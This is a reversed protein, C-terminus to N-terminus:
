SIESCINAQDAISRSMVALGLGAGSLPGFFVAAFTAKLMSPASGRGFPSVTAEDIVRSGAPRTAGTM